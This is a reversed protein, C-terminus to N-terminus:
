KKYNDKTLGNDIADVIKDWTPAETRSVVSPHLVIAENVTRVEAVARVERLKRITTGVFNKSLGFENEVDKRKWIVLENTKEQDPNDCLIHTKYHMHGLMLMFLGLENMTLKKAIESLRTKFVKVFMSDNRSKGCVLFGESINIYVNKGVKERTLLGNAELESIIARVQAPKKGVLKSVDEMSLRDTKSKYLKGEENLKMYSVLFLYMGVQGIKLNGKVSNFNDRQLMVFGKEKPKHLRKFQENREKQAPSTITYGSELLDKATSELNIKGM